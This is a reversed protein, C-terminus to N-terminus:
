YGLFPKGSSSDTINHHDHKRESYLQFDSRICGSEERKFVVYYADVVNQVTTNPTLHVCKRNINAQVPTQRLNDNQFQTISM